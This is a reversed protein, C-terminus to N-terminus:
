FYFRHFLAVQLLSLFFSHAHSGVKLLMNRLLTHMSYTTQGSGRRTGTFRSIAKGSVTKSNLWWMFLFILNAVMNVHHLRFMADFTCSSGIPLRHLTQCLTAHPRYAPILSSTPPLLDSSSLWMWYLKLSAWLNKLSFRCPIFCYHLLVTTRERISRALPLNGTLNSAM